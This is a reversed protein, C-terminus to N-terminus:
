LKFTGEGSLETVFDKVIVHSPFPYVFESTFTASSPTSSDEEEIETKFISNPLLPGEQLRPLAM